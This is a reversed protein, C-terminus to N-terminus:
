LPQHEARWEKPSVGYTRFFEKYFQSYEGYGCEEAVQALSSSTVRLLWEAHKMRHLNRYELPTMHYGKKMLNIIQNKSYRFRVSLDQLSISECAHERLYEAIEGVPGTPEESLYLKSLVRFFLASKETLSRNRSHALDLREMLPMMEEPSFVGQRPLIEGEDGWCGDFHVYLYKPSDSPHLAGHRTHAKQIFYEGAGIDYPKGDETFHLVGEFVLLLVNEMCFRVTHSEQPSFYRLSAHKYQIPQNLDIGIM